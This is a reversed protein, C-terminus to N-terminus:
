LGLGEKVKMIEKSVSRKCLTYFRTVNEMHEMMTMPEFFHVDVNTESMIGRIDGEYFKYIELLEMMDDPMYKHYPLHIPYGIEKLIMVVFEICSYAKYTEFGKSIPYTVVSFMNYIIEPDHMFEYIKNKVYFYKEKSVPLRYVCVPVEEDLNLTYSTFSEKVLKGLFPAQYQPRSFGYIQDLHEDLSIAAHSFKAKSVKRIVKAVRTQTRSLVVYIYYNEEMIAGWKM